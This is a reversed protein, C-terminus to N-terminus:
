LTEVEEHAQIPEEGCGADTRPPLTILQDRGAPDRNVTVNARIEARLWALAIMHLDTALENMELPRHRNCKVFRGSKNRGSAIRVGVVRDEIQQRWLKGAKEINAPEIGLTLSQEKQRVVTIERLLESVWPKFDIFLVLDRQISLPVARERLFKQASNKEITLARLNRPEM